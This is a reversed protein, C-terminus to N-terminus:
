TLFGLEGKGISHKERFQKWAGETIKMSSITERM